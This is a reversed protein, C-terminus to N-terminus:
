NKYLLPFGGEPPQLWNDKAYTTLKTEIVHFTYAHRSKDSKNAKSFHVVLGHLLICSGRRVPVARFNSAPYCPTGRDYILIDKSSEPYDKNRIYRRHVGSKHSGPAVWLCGNELTADDLAIWFGVLKMPEVHLYSADQHAIVESGLGPNKYIYMSQCVAPEQFNLQFATEKIREDFTVRKFTPHLWHLAHGVKNLSVRPHVKLKGNDELSESEFFYSIKHASDMFYEDKNQQLEITNFVKRQNEPPLNNTFDEGCAKMEEVEEPSFFDELVVYGDKELQLQIDKM